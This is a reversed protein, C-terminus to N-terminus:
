EDFGLIKRFTDHMGNALESRVRQRAMHDVHDAVLPTVDVVHRIMFIAEILKEADDERIDQDFTVYVGKLRDTM